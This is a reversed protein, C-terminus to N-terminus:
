SLTEVYLVWPEIHLGCFHSYYLKIENMCNIQQVM